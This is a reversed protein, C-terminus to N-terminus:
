ASAPPSAAGSRRDITTLEGVHRVVDMWALLRDATDQGAPLAVRVRRSEGTLLTFVSDDVTAGPVLHDASIVIDKATSRASLVLDIGGDAPQVEVELADPRLRLNPDEDFWWLAREGTSIRAVLLEDTPDSADAIWEPIPM